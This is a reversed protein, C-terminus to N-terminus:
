ADMKYPKKSVNQVLNLDLEIPAHDSNQIPYYKIGTNPFLSFWDKSGLARDIREYVRKDGKRNNCWTFRLGKFPIDVLEISVRWLNFDYAGSIVRKNASLKDSEFEVQNFDGVILFPHNLAM